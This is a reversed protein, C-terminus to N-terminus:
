AANDQYFQAVEGILYTVEELQSALNHHKGTIGSEAMVALFLLKQVIFEPMMLESAHDHCRWLSEAIKNNSLGDLNYVVEYWICVLDLVLWFFDGTQQGLSPLSVHYQEDVVERIVPKSEVDHEHSDSVGIKIGFIAIEKLHLSFNSKFIKFGLVVVLLTSGLLAGVEVMEKM